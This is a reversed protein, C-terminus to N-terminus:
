CDPPLSRLEPKRATIACDELHKVRAELQLRRAEDARVTSLANNYVSWSGYMGGVVAVIISLLGLTSVSYVIATIRKIKKRTDGVFGSISSMIPNGANAKQFYQDPELWRKSAPFVRFDQVEPRYGPRVSPQGFLTKSFEIWVIKEDKAITLPQSTLNHLPILLRGRFGPDVIPGTGLLLGRHVLKIHLNFRIAIYQPLRFEVDTQVFTISNAELVLEESKSSSISIVKKKKKDDWYYVNDALGIEYTAGKLLREDFPRVLGIVRAYNKIQEATLLAPQLDDFPDDYEWWDARLEFDSRSQPPELSRADSPRIPSTVVPQEPGYLLRRGYNSM